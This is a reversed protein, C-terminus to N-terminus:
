SQAHGNDQEKYYLDTEDINDLKVDLTDSGDSIPSITHQEAILQNMSDFFEKKMAEHIVEKIHERDKVIYKIIVWFLEFQDQNLKIDSKSLFRMVEYASLRTRLAMDIMSGLKRLQVTNLTAYIEKYNLM